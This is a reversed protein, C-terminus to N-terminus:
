KKDMYKRALVKFCIDPLNLGLKTLARTFQEFTVHCTNIRDFDQLSPKILIRRTRIENRLYNIINTLLVAEHDEYISKSKVANLNELALDRDYFQHEVSECFSVYDILNDPRRYRSLLAQINDESLHLKFNSLGSRFKDETIYSKRLKDYDEFFDKIRLQHKYAEAKIYKEIDDEIRLTHKNRLSAM